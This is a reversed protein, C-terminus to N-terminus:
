YPPGVSYQTRRSPIVILQPSVGRSVLYNYTGVDRYSSGTPQLPPPGVVRSTPVRQVPLLSPSVFTRSPALPEIAVPKTVLTLEEAVEPTLRPLRDPIVALKDTIASVISSTIRITQRALPGLLVRGLEFLDKIEKRRRNLDRLQALLAVLTAAFKQKPSLEEFIGVYSLTQGLFSSDESSGTLYQFSVIVLQKVLYTVSALQAYFFDWATNFALVIISGILTENFSEYLSGISATFASLVPIEFLYEPPIQDLLSVFTLFFVTFMLFSQFSAGAHLGGQMRSPKTSRRPSRKTSRGPSRKTSRRPSRKTSRSRQTELTPGETLFRQPETSIGFREESSVETHSAYQIVNNVTLVSTQLFLTPKENKRLLQRAGTLGVYTLYGYNAYNALRVVDLGLINNIGEGFYIFDLYVLLALMWKNFSSADRVQVLEKLYFFSSFCLGVSLRFLYGFRSSDDLFEKAYFLISGLSSPWVLNEKFTANISTEIGYIGVAVNSYGLRNWFRADTFIFNLLIWFAMFLCNRFTQPFTVPSVPENINPVVQTSHFAELQSSSMRSRDSTGRVYPVLDSQGGKLHASSNSGLLSFGGSLPTRLWNSFENFFEDQSPIPVDMAELFFEM